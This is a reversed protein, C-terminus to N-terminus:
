EQFAAEVCKPSYRCASVGDPKVAPKLSCSGCQMICTHSRSSLNAQSAPTVEVQPHLDTDICSATVDWLFGHDQVEEVGESALGHLAHPVVENARVFAIRPADYDDVVMRLVGIHPVCDIEKLPVRPRPRAVVNNILASLATELSTYLSNRARATPATM